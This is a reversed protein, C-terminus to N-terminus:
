KVGLQCLLAWHGGPGLGVSPRQAQMGGWSLHKERPGSVALVVAGRRECLFVILPIHHTFELWGASWVDAESYAM